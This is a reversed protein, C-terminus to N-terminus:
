WMTYTYKCPQPPATVQLVGKGSKAATMVQKKATPFVSAVVMSGGVAAATVGGIVKPNVNAPLSVPVTGTFGAKGAKKTTKTIDEMPAAIVGGQEVVVEKGDTKVIIRQLCNVIILVASLCTCQQLPLLPCVPFIGGEVCVCVCMSACMCVHVCVCVCVYM